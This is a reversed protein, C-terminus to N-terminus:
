NALTAPDIDCVEAPLGAPLELVQGSLLVNTKTYADMREATNVTLGTVSRITDSFSVGLSNGACSVARLAFKAAAVAEKTTSAQLKLQVAKAHQRAAAVTKQSSGFKDVIARQVDDRVGDNDSDIGEVTAKGATGPDPPLSATAVTQPTSAASASGGGSCGAIIAALATLCLIYYLMKKM